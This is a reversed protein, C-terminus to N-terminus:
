EYNKEKNSITLLHIFFLEMVEYIDSFKDRDRVPRNKGRPVIKKLFVM